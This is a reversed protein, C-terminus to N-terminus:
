YRIAREERYEDDRVGAFRKLLLRWQAAIDDADFLLSGVVLFDVSEALQEFTFPNVGGDIGIRIRRNTSKCLVRFERVRAPARPALPSRRAGVPIGMVLINNITRLYPRFANTTPIDLDLALGVETGQRSFYELAVEIIRSTTWPFVHIIAADGARLPLPRYDLDKPPYYVHFDIASCFLDRESDGFNKYSLLGYNNHSTGIDIHIRECGIANLVNAKDRITGPLCVISPTLSKLM